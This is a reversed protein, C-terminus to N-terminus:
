MPSAAKTSPVLGSTWFGDILLGLDAIMSASGTHKPGSYQRM